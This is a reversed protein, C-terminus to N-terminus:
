SRTRRRGKMGAAISLTLYYTALFVNIFQPLLLTYSLRSSNDCGIGIAYFVQTTVVIIAISGVIVEVSKTLRRRERASLSWLLYHLLIGALVAVGAVNYLLRRLERIPTEQSGVIGVTWSVTGFSALVAAGVLFSLVGLGIASRLHRRVVVDDSALFISRLVFYVVVSVVAALLGSVVVWPIAGLIGPLAADVLVASIARNSAANNLILPGVLGSLTANSVVTIAFWATLRQVTWPAANARAYNGRLSELPLGVGGMVAAALNAIFLVPFSVPPLDLLQSYIADCVIGVVGVSFILWDRLSKKFFRRRGNGTM